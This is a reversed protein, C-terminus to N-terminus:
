RRTELQSCILGARALQSNDRRALRGRRGKKGNVKEELFTIFINFIHTQVRGQVRRTSSDMILKHKFM